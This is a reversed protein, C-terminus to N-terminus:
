NRIIEKKETKDAKHEANLASRFISNVKLISFSLASPTLQFLQSYARLLMLIADMGVETHRYTHTHTGCSLNIPPIKPPEAINMMMM